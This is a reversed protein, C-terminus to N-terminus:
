ANAARAQLQEYLGFHDLLMVKIGERIEASNLAKTSLETQVDMSEMIATLIEDTLDPSNAFPAIAGMAPNRPAKPVQYHFDANQNMSLLNATVLFSGEEFIITITFFIM